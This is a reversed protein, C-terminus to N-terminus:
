GGRKKLRECVNTTDCLLKRDFFTCYDTILPKPVEESGYICNYCLNNKLCGNIHQKRLETIIENNWANKLSDKNLNAYVLYNQFDNCCATLYGEYTVNIVDFVYHCPLNRSSQIKNTEDSCKLIKFECPIYGSQNRVNVISVDDCYNIFYNYIKNISYDTYKTAIYSVFIKFNLKNVKRYNFTNKLNTIASNFCDVGHIFLYDDNNIANISFKISDLGSDILKKLTNNNVLIGNTTIYIYKFGIKKAYAIANYIKSYLLPEGTTYFGVEEVGLSYAEELIKCLLDFDIEGYERSMKRNACFICKSNCKNTVEILITKPINAYELANVDNFIKDIRNELFKKM